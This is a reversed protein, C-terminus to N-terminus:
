HGHSSRKMDREDMPVSIVDPEPMNEAPIQKSLRTVESNKGPAAVNIWIEDGNTNDTLVLKNAMVKDVTLQQAALVTGPAVTLMEGAATKVVAKQDQASLALVNLGTDGAMTLSSCLLLIVSLLVRGPNIRTIRHAINRKTTNM